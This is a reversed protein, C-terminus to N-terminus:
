AGGELTEETHPVSSNEERIQKKLEAEAKYAELALQSLQLLEVGSFTAIDKYSGSKGITKSFTASTFEGNEGENVWIASKVRWNQPDELKIAPQNKTQNEM